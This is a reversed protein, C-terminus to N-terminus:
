ENSEGYLDNATVDLIRQYAECLGIAHGNASDALHKEENVFSRSCWAEQLEKRMRDLHQYLEKTVPHSLWAQFLEEQETKPLDNESM